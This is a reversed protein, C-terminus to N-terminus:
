NNEEAKSEEKASEDKSEEVPKEGTKSEDNRKAEIIKAKEISEKLQEETKGSIDIGLLKAEEHRDEKEKLDIEHKETASQLKTKMETMSMSTNLTAGVKKGEELIHLKENEEKLNVLEVSKNTDPQLVSNKLIVFGKNPGPVSGKILVVNLEDDIKVIQLNQMTTKVHGMHGPLKKSKKVVGRIDGMSGSSRHYKSGHSKPGISYNHRKIGGAFGKGKSTGTVDIIDGNQFVDSAKVVQGLEFGDMDRIESKFYVPKTNAKKAKGLEPKNSKSEKKEEYGLQLSNYSDTEIKKVQMVVNPKVEIVTVPLTKGDKTFIQTMGAKRGLIGKM